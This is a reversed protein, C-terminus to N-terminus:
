RRTPATPSAAVGVIRGKPRSRDITVPALSDIFQINGARDRVELRLFVRDPVTRAVQWSYSGENQLRTAIPNWQGTIKEAYYIAVPHEALSADGAQWRIDVRDALEGKGVQAGLLRADPPTTDVLVRLQPADGARPPELGLDAGSRVMLTFGYLGDGPVRVDFPSTRDTDEGYRHWAKGDDTTIWLEVVGVGSPGIADLQYDLTFDLANVAQIEDLSVGDPVHSTTASAPSSATPRDQPTAEARPAPATRQSRTIGLSPKKLQDEFRDELSIPQNSRVSSPGVADTPPEPRGAPLTTTAQAEAEAGAANGALDRVRARFQVPGETKIPWHVQGTRAPQIRVPQWSNSGSERCDIKLSGLDAHLDTVQWEVMVSGTGIRKTRLAIKPVDSDVVVKLGATLDTAAVPQGKGLRDVTRVGFWYEGDGESRYTFDRASPETSQHRQWTKGQDKSVYLEITKLRDAESPDLQFPIRFTSYQTYIPKTAVPSDARVLLAVLPSLAVVM